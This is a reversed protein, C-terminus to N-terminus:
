RWRFLPIVVGGDAQADADALHQAQGQIVSEPVFGLNKFFLFFLAQM